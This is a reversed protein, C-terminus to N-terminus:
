CFSCCARPQSTKPVRLTIQGSVVSEIRKEQDKLFKMAGDIEEQSPTRGLVQQWLTPIWEEHKSHSNNIINSAL